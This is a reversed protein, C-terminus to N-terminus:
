FGPPSLIHTISLVYPKYDILYVPVFKFNTQIIYMKKFFIAISFTM